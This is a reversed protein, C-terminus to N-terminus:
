KKSSPPAAEIPKATAIPAEIPRATAIPAEIPKATAIPAEIPKATAIPTQAAKMVSGLGLKNITKENKATFDNLKNTLGKSLGTGLQQTLGNSFKEKVANGIGKGLQGRIEGFSPVVSGQGSNTLMGKPDMSPAMGPMQNAMMSQMQNAMNPQMQNGMMSAPSAMNPQMQNGMNFAPNGMNFAPNAMNFAPNGMNPQMQNNSIMNTLAGMAGQNNGAINGIMNTLAGQNNGAINGIMNTLAGQNNGVMNTLAGMAGQNNGVNNTLAGQNNGAINGLMSAMGANNGAKDGMIGTMKSKMDGLKGKMDGLAGAKDGMIGSFKSKMDSFMGSKNGSKNGSGSGSGYCRETASNNASILNTIRVTLNKLALGIAFDVKKAATMYPHPVQLVIIFILLLCVLIGTIYNYAKKMFAEKENLKKAQPINCDVPPPEIKKNLISIFFILKDSAIDEVILTILRLLIYIVIFKIIIATYSKLKEILNCLGPIKLLICKIPRILLIVMILVCIGLLFLLSSEVIKAFKLLNPKNQGCSMKYFAKAIVSGIVIVAIPWLIYLSGILQKCIQIIDLEDKIRPLYDILLYFILYISTIVFFVSYVMQTTKKEFTIPIDPLNIYDYSIWKFFAQLKVWILFIILFIVIIGTLVGPFVNTAHLPKNYTIKSDKSKFKSTVKGLMEFLKNKFKTFFDMIWTTSLYINRLLTAIALSLRKLLNQKNFKEDKMTAKADTAAKGNSGQAQQSPAENNSSNFYEGHHVFM